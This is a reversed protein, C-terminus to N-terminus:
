AIPGSWLFRESRREGTTPTLAVIGRVVSSCANSEDIYFDSSSVLDEGVYDVTICVRDCLIDHVFVAADRAVVSLRESEPHEDYNDCSFHLHHKYGIDITLEDGDDFVTLDGVAEHKAPIVAAPPSECFRFDRPAGELEGLHATFEDLTPTM